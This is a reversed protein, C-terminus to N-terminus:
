SAAGALAQEREYREIAAISWRVTRGFRTPAPMGQPARGTALWKAITQEKFGWREALEKTSLFRRREESM